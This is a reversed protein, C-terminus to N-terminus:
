LESSKHRQQSISAVNAVSPAEYRHTLIEWAETMDVAESILQKM